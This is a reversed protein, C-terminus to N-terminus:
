RQSVIALVEGALGHSCRAVDDVSVLGVMKNMRDLVALRRIGLKAMLVAADAVDQDDFCCAIEGSVVDRVKTKAPDRGDAVARCAIDRDTVMGTLRDDEGVPLSGINSDRMIRAAEQITLAPSVLEVDPTMIERVQM